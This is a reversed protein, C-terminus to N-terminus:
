SKGEGRLGGNPTGYPFLMVYLLISYLLTSYLLTSCMSFGRLRSCSPLFRRRGQRLVMYGDCSLLCSVLFLLCSRLNPPLSTQSLRGLMLSISEWFQSRCRDDICASRGQDNNFCVFMPLSYPLLPCICIMIMMQVARNQAGPRMCRALSVAADVSLPILSSTTCKSTPRYADLPGLADLRRRFVDLGAAARLDAESSTRASNPIIPDMM